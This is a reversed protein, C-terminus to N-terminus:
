ALVTTQRDTGDFVFVGKEKNGPIPNNDELAMSAMIVM